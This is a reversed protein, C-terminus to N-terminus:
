KQVLSVRPTTFTITRNADDLATFTSQAAGSTAGNLSTCLALCSDTQATITSSAPGCFGSFAAYTTAPVVDNEIRVGAANFLELQWQTVRLGSTGASVTIALLWPDAADCNTTDIRSPNPLM